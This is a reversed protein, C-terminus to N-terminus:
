PRGQRPSILSLDILSSHTFYYIKEPPKEHYIRHREHARKHKELPAYLVPVTACFTRVIRERM